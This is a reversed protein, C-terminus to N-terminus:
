MRLRVKVEACEMVGWSAKQPVLGSRDCMWGKPHRANEYLSSMVLGPFNVKLAVRQM